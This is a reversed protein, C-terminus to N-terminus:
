SSTLKVYNKQFPVYGDLALFEYALNKIINREKNEVLKIGSRNKVSNYAKLYKIITDILMDRIDEFERFEWEQNDNMVMVGNGFRDPKILTNNEPRDKNFHVDDIIRSLGYIGSKGFVKLKHIISPDNFLYSLDEQGFVNVVQVNNNQINQINTTNITNNTINNNVISQNVINQQNLSEDVISEEPPYCKVYKNHKCRGSVYHFVKLCTKCQKPNYIGRCNKMHVKLNDMRTFNKNCKNCQYNRTVRTPQSIDTEPELINKEPELINKESGCISKETDNKDVNNSKSMSEINGNITNVCPLKKNIHRLYNAKRNSSYGCKECIHVM